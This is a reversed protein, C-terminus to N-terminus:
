TLSYDPCARVGLRLPQSAVALSHLSRTRLDEELGM